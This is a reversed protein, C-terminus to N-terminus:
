YKYKYTKIKYPNNYGKKGTYPNVNGKYSYNNTKFSDANSKYHGYVYTGNKKVYGKTYTAFCPLLSLIVIIILTKKM